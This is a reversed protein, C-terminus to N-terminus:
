GCCITACFCLCSLSMFSGWPPLSTALTFTACSTWATEIMRPWSTNAFTVNNGAIWLMYMKTKKLFMLWTSMGKTRPRFKQKHVAMMLCRGSDLHESIQLMAGIKLLPLFRWGLRMRQVVTMSSGWLTIGCSLWSNPHLLSLMSSWCALIKKSSQTTPWWDKLIKLLPFAHRAYMQPDIGKTYNLTGQAGFTRGSTNWFPMLNAMVCESTLYILSLLPM